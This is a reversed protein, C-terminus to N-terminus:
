NLSSKIYVPLHVYTRHLCGETLSRSMQSNTDRHPSPYCIRLGIGLWSWPFGVDTHDYIVSGVQGNQGEGRKGFKRKFKGTFSKNRTQTSKM